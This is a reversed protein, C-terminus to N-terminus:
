GLQALQRNVAAGHELRRVETLDTFLFVAGNFPGSGHLLSGTMGIVRKGRGDDFILERRVVPEGTEMMERMTEAFGALEPSEEIPRGVRLSEPDLSLHASAMPNVMTLVGRGDVAVVGSTLSDVVQEYHGVAPQGNSGRSAERKPGSM